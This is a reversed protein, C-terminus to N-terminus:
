RILSSLEKFEPSEATRLWEFVVMETSTVVINSAALRACAIEKNSMRRSATADVAVIPVIGAQVLGVATQFVCVHAELGLLVVQTRGSAVIRDRIGPNDFCSFEMKSMIEDADLLELLEPVINGLGKPYQTSALIPVSKIRAARLITGANKVVDQAKSMSSLLREQIDIALVLCEGVDALLM